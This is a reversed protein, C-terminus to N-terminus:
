EFSVMIRVMHKNVSQTASLNLQQREQNEGMINIKKKLSRKNYNKVKCRNIENMNKEIDQINNEVYNLIDNQIAWKFFNIQGITTVISKGVDYEFTIRNRRCFPDFYKKSYAKLQAKYELFVNFQKTGVKYVVMFRKSYNTVFWDLIRLSINSQGNIIPLIRLMEKNGYVHETLSKLLVDEKTTIGNKSKKNLQQTEKIADLVGINATKISKYHSIRKEDNSDKLHGDNSLSTDNTKKTNISYSTTYCSSAM